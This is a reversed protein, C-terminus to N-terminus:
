VLPRQGKNCIDFKTNRRFVYSYPRGASRCVKRFEIKSRLKVVLAAVRTTYYFIQCADSIKSIRLNQVNRVEARSNLTVGRHITPAAMCASKWRARKEAAVSVDHGSMQRVHHTFADCQPTPSPASLLPARGAPRATRFRKTLAVLFASVLGPARGRDTNATAVEAEKLKSAHNAAHSKWTPFTRYGSHPWRGRWATRTCLHPWRTRKRVFLRGLGRHPEGTGSMDLFL